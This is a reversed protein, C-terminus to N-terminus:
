HQWLLGSGLVPAHAPDPTRACLGHRQSASVSAEAGPSSVMISPSGPSVHIKLTAVKFLIVCGQDHACHPSQGPLAVSPEYVLHRKPNDELVLTGPTVLPSGQPFAGVSPNSRHIHPLWSGPALSVEDQNRGMVEPQITRPLDNM